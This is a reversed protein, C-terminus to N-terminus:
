LIESEDIFLLLLINKLPSGVHYLFLYLSADCSGAISRIRPVDTTQDEANMMVAWPFVNAITPLRSLAFM